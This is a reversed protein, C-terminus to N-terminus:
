ARDGLAVRIKAAIRGVTSLVGEKSAAEAEGTMTSRGDDPDILKIALRFRGHDSSISGAVVRDIGERRAVLQAVHEDLVGGPKVLAVLRLADRRPYTTVFSAEEIGLGVAQELLGDFLPERARNELECGAGLGLRARGSDAACRVGSDALDM